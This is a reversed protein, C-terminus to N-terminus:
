GADAKGQRELEREICQWEDKLRYRLYAVLAQDRLRRFASSVVQSASVILLV